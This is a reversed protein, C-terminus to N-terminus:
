EMTLGRLPAAGGRSQRFHHTLLGSLLSEVARTGPKSTLACRLHEPAPCDHFARGAGSLPDLDATFMTDLGLYSVSSTLTGELAGGWSPDDDLAALDCLSFISPLVAPPAAMAAARFLASDATAVVTTM